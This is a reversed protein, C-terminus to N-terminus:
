FILRILYELIIPLITQSITSLIIKWNLKILNFFNKLHNKIQQRVASIFNLM